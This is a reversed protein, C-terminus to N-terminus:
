SVCFALGPLRLGSGPAHPMADVDRDLHVFSIAFVLM